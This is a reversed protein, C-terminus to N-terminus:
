QTRTLYKTFSTSPHSTTVYYNSFGKLLMQPSQEASLHTLGFLTVSVIDKQKNTVSKILIKNSIPTDMTELPKKTHINLHFVKQFLSNRSVRENIAKPLQNIIQRPHNSSKNIHSLLGNPKKFSRYTCNNLNFTINLFDAIKLHTEVDITFGNDKFIKM